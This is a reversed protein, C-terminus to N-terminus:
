LFANWLFNNKRKKKEEEDDGYNFWDKTKETLLTKLEVTTYTKKASIPKIEATKVATLNVKTAIYSTYLRPITLGLIMGPLGNISCPGGSITIDDTYFAFVYVDDFIKGVAKRCNYGAIERNENTIKWEITPISDAIIFNTGAILKQINKTRTNFDYYWINEEDEEKEYKPIKTKPSWRDFNFVSKNNFFSFKWFSTKLESMSEKMQDNWSNNGIQKKLNTNVEFEIEGKDIFQQAILSSTFFLMAVFFLIKKM